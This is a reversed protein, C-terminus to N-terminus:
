IRWSIVNKISDTEAATPYRGQQEFHKEAWNGLATVLDLQPVEM